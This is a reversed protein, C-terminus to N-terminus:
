SEKRLRFPAGCVRWEAEDNDHQNKEGSGSHGRTAGILHRSGIL